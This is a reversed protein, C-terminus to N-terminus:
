ATGNSQNIKLTGYYHSGLILAGSAIDTLSQNKVKTSKINQAHIHGSLSLKIGATTFAKRVDEAYGITYDQHIVTHDMTNHHLV